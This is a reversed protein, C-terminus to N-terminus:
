DLRKKLDDKAHGFGEQIKGEAQKVKGEIKDETSDTADGYADQLKGEAQKVKGKVVDKSVM